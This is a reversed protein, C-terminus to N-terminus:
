PRDTSFGDNSKLLIMSRERPTALVMDPPM